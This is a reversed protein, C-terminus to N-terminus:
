VLRLLVSRLVFWFFMNRVVFEFDVPSGIDELSSM